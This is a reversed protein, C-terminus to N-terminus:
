PCDYLGLDALDDQASSTWELSPDFADGGSADGTTVTCSRRLTENATGVGAVLWEVGPDVGVQGIVDLVVGGCRLEVADDGSYFTGTALVDCASADVIDDDCVVQVDAAAVEGALAITAGPVVAGNFYFRLECGALEAPAGSANFIELAKNTASGEVYESFYLNAPPPPPSADLQGADAPAYGNSSGADQGDCVTFSAGGDGTFRFAVDYSGAAPVVLTAQYEDNSAEYGPALPGYGLNPSGAQWVWGGDQAPDSGDPGYGVEGAVQPAPDVVGSGDTLGAIFLRGFVDIEDGQVADISLPFQLRCFDVTYDVPFCGVNAAGPSGRDGPAYDTVGECWNSGDDNAVVDLAGPDLQMSAGTPDPFTAGDDYGIEDIPAGDCVLRITDSTNGLTFAGSWVFDPAFGPTAATALTVYDGATVVLDGDIAFAEGMGGGQVVCGGLQFAEILGPNHLEFWEGQDDALAAPNQMVETIVIEAFGPHVFDTCGSEDYQCSAGCALAGGTHGLDLCSATGVDGDCDEGVDVNGDGCAPGGSSSGSESSGTSGESSSGASSSGESSSGGSSSGGSSSGGSSSGGSSSGGSSSGGSSSGDSSSGDTGASTATTDASTPDGDTQPLTEASGASSAVAGDDDGCAAALALVLWWRGQMHPKADRTM